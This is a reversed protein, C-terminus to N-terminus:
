FFLFGTNRVREPSIRSNLTDSDHSVQVTECLVHIMLRVLMRGICEYEM